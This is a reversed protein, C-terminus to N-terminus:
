RGAAAGGGMAPYFHSYNMFTSASSPRGAGPTEERVMQREIAQFQRDIQQQQRASDLQPKVWAYYAPVGGVSGRSLYLYPSIVPRSTQYQARRPRPGQAMANTACLALLTVALVLNRSM